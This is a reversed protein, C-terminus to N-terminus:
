LNWLYICYQALSTKSRDLICGPATYSVTPIGWWLWKPDKESRWGTALCECPHMPLSPWCFPHGVSPIAVTGKPHPHVSGLSLSCSRAPEGLVCHEDQVRTGTSMFDDPIHVNGKRATSGYPNTCRSRDEANPGGRRQWSTLSLM